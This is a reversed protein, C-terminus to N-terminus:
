GSDSLAYPAGRGVDINAQRSGPDWRALIEQYWNLYTEVQLNLDFRQRADHTANEGLQSCLRGDSLLAMVASALSEADGPPALVGTARDIEYKNLAYGTGRLGKVQEPIGGVATAVVPTGCALSELVTNPFNDARAAHVLVDAAQYYGAVVKPDRQYPVFRVEAEGTREGPGAEGLAVFLVKEGQLRRAILDVATRVTRYDKYPNKRIGKAVFLLVRADAPLGLRRRVARKDAACFVDLDVGYPIVRVEAVASALM